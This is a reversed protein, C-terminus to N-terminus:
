QIGEMELELIERRWQERQEEDVDADPLLRRRTCNLLAQLTQYRRTKVIDPPIIDRVVELIEEVTLKGGRARGILEARLSAFNAAAYGTTAGRLKDLEPEGLPADIVKAVSWRAFELHDDGTPDLVPIILDGTRGPRRIDPSLLHIRATMLLWVVRGRLQPDSM